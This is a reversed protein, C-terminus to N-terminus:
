ILAQSKYHKKVFTGYWKEWRESFVRPTSGKELIRKFYPMLESDLPDSFSPAKSFDFEYLNAYHYLSLPHKKILKFGAQEIDSENKLLGAGRSLFLQQTYTDKIIVGSNIEYFLTDQYDMTTTFVDWEPFDVEIKINQFIAKAYKFINEDQWRGWLDTRKNPFYASVEIDAFEKASYTKGLTMLAHKFEEPDALTENALGLLVIKKPPNKSGFETNSKIDYFLVNKQWEKPVLFWFDKHLIFKRNGEMLSESANKLFFSLPILGDRLMWIDKKLLQELSAGGFILFPNLHSYYKEGFPSLYNHYLRETDSQGENTNLYFSQIFDYSWQVLEPSNKVEM